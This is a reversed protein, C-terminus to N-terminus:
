DEKAEKYHVHHEEKSEKKAEPDSNCEECHSTLKLAAVSAILVIATFKM